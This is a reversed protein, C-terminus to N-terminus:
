KQAMTAILNMIELKSFGQKEYEECFIKMQKASEAVNQRYAIKKEIEDVQETLNDVRERLEEIEKDLKTM